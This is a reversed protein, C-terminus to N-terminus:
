PKPTKDRAGNSYPSNGGTSFGGANLRLYSSAPFGGLQPADTATTANTATDATAASNSRISYPATLIQTRPALIVFSESANRRVSVELFRNAGTFSNAGFDLLVGFIGSTVTVSPNTQTAGIQTGTMLADFLKFQMEYNGNAPANNDNLKGQYNFASTQAAGISTLVLTLSLAFLLLFGNRRSTRYIRKM